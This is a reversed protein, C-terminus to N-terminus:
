ANWRNGCFTCTVREPIQEDASRYQNKEVITQNHGCRFCKFRTTTKETSVINAKLKYTEHYKEFLEPFYTEFDMSGVDTPEIKMQNISEILKRARDGNLEPDLKALANACIHHYLERFQDVSWNCLIREKKAVELTKKYCGKELSMLIYEREDYSLDPHM